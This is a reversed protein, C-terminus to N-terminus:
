NDDGELNKIVILCYREGQTPENEKRLRYKTLYTTANIEQIIEHIKIIVGDKLLQSLAISFAKSASTRYDGEEIVASNVEWPEFARDPHNKFLEIMKIKLEKTLSEVEKKYWEPVFNEGRKILLGWLEM